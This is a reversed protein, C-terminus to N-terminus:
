VLELVEVAVRGAAEVANQVAEDAFHLVDFTACLETASLSLAYLDVLEPWLVCAVGLLIVHQTV